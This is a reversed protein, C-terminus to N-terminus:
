DKNSKAISKAKEQKEIIMILILYRGVTPASRWSNTDPGVTQTPCWSYPDLFL